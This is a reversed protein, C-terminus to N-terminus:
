DLDTLQSTVEVVKRKFDKTFSGQFLGRLKQGTYISPPVGVIM